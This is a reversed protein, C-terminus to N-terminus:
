AELSVVEQQRQAQREMVRRLAENRRGTREAITERHQVEAEQELEAERRRAEIREKWDEAAAAGPKRLRATPTSAGGEERERLRQKLRETASPSRVAAVCMGAEPVASPYAEATSPRSAITADPLTATADLSSSCPPTPTSGGASRLSRRELPTLPRDGRGETSPPMPPRAWTQDSQARQPVPTESPPAGDSAPATFEGSAEQLRREEAEREQQERRLKLAQIPNMPV